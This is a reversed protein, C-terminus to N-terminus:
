FGNRDASSSDESSFVQNLVAPGVAATLERSNGRLDRLTAGTEVTRDIKALAEIQDAKLPVPIELSRLFDAPVRQQGATGTFHKAAQMRIERTRLFRHIWRAQTGNQPRIVHFETSGYGHGHPGTFIACKGNQMSPTIRAFLVDGKRFQKYGSRAEGAEREGPSITGNKDDLAAMPVWGIREDPPVQDRPPSVEAVTGLSATPWGAAIGRRFVEWVAAEVMAEGLDAAERQARAIRTLEADVSNLQKVIRAQDRILPLPIEVELLQSPHVRKRRVMSGRPVLRQWFSPWRAVWRLYAPDARDSKISFTPYENSVLCGELAKPVVDVAGEWGNLRSVVFQDRHLRFLLKYSTEAGLIQGRQFLGRGFSYIGATCYSQDPEVQVQDRDPALVEGLPVLPFDGTM